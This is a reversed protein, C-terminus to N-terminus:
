VIPSAAPEVLVITGPEDRKAAYLAADARSLLTSPTDDIASVTVGMSAGVTIDGARLPPRTLRHHIREAVRRANDADVVLDLVIVFEDGGIRAALDSGRVARELRKGVEVLIEDGAAHGLTDNVPKFRDLDIYCLGVPTDERLSRSLAAGLRDAVVARNPLDTLPDHTARHALEDSLLQRETVDRSTLVIGRVSPEDILNTGLTEIWKWSGDYSRVRMTFPRPPRTANVLAEFEPFAGPLDDPHVLDLIGGASRWGDPYGLVRENSPSAYLVQGNADVVTIIDNAHRFLHGFRQLDLELRKRETIDFTAVIRLPDDLTVIDAARTEL